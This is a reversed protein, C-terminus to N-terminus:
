PRDRLRRSGKEVLPPAPKENDALWRSIRNFNGPNYDASKPNDSFVIRLGPKEGADDVIDTRNTALHIREPDSPYHPPRPGRGYPGLGGVARTPGNSLPQSGDLAVVTCM